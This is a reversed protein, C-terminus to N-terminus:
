HGCGSHSALPGGGRVHRGAGHGSRPPRIFPFRESQKALLQDFHQQQSPNLIARIENHLKRKHERMPTGCNAALERLLRRREPRYNQMIQRIGDRQQDSLDLEWQLKRLHRREVRTDPELTVEKTYEQQTWARVGAGGALAGLLFVGSLIMVGKLKANRM